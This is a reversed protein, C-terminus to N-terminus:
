QALPLALPSASFAPAEHDLLKLGHGAQATTPLVFAACLVATAAALKGRM